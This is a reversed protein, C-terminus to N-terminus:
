RISTMMLAQWLGVTSIMLVVCLFIVRRNM